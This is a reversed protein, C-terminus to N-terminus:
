RGPLDVRTAIIQGRQDREGTITVQQGTSVAAVGNTVPTAVITGPTTQLPTLTGDAARITLVPFGSPTLDVSEVTGLVPPVSGPGTAPATARGVFLGIALFVIAGLVLLLIRTSRAMGPRSLRDRLPVDDVPRDLVGVQTPQEAEWGAAPGGDRSASEAGFPPQPSPSMIPGTEGPDRDDGSARTAPEPAGGSEKPETM